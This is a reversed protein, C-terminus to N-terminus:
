FVHPWNLMVMLLQPEIRRQNSSSSSASIAAATNTTGASKTSPSAFKAHNSSNFEMANGNSTWRGLLNRLISPYTHIGEQRLPYPYNLWTRVAYYMRVPLMSMHAGTHWTTIAYVSAVMGNVIITGSHTAPAYIGNTSSIKQITQITRLVGSQNLTKDLTYLVQGVKVDSVLTPDLHEGVFLIHDHSITICDSHTCIQYMTRALPRSDAHLFMYVMDYVFKGSKYALVEMGPQLDKMQVLGHRSHVLTDGGFCSSKQEMQIDYSWKACTVNNMVTCSATGSVTYTEANSLGVMWGVVGLLFFM